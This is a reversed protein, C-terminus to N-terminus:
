EPALALLEDVARGLEAAISARETASVRPKALVAAATSVRAIPSLLDAPDIFDAHPDTVEPRDILALEDLKVAEKRCLKESEWDDTRDRIVVAIDRLTNAYCQLVEQLAAVPTMGNIEGVLYWSTDRIADAVHWAIGKAEERQEILHECVTLPDRLGVSVDGLLEADSVGPPIISLFTM